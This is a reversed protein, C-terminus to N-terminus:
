EPWDARLTALYGEEYVGELGSAAHAIATRRAEIRQRDVDSVARRGEDILHLLLATPRERDEPWRRRAIELARSLEDSETLLHRPRTTPVGFHIM